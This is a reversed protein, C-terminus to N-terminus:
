KTIREYNTKYTEIKALMATCIKNKEIAMNAFQKATQSFERMNCIMDSCVIDAM